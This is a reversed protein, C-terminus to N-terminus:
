QASVSRLFRIWTMFEKGVIINYISITPIDLM